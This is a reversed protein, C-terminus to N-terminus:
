SLIRNIIKQPKSLVNFFIDKFSSKMQDGFLKMMHTTLTKNYVNGAALVREKMQDKSLDEWHFKVEEMMEYDEIKQGNDYMKALKGNDYKMFFQQDIKYKLLVDKTGPKLFYHRLEAEKQTFSLGVALRPANTINPPSSHFTRNDFILAEGAKMPLLEFYPFLSFMHKALPSPVQPSPSPRVSNFFKHSGKIIGMCGNDMDTDVLAIWCTVSCHKTEDEVFTWDQHPPVVGKPNPDKIVYSATILQYDKLHPTLKPMAIEAIKDMMQAVLDKNDHDMAVYFGYDNVKKIGSEFLYNKLIEIENGELVPMKIFGNQEFFQQQNEDKFLAQMNTNRIRNQYLKEKFITYSLKKPHFAKEEVWKGILPKHIIEPYHLFMQTPMEFKSLANKNKDYYLMFLEADKHVLGITLALRNEMSKNPWSAHMLKQNFVFAEGAKLPLTILHSEFQQREADFAVPISPARYNEDVIHSGPILRIAGNEKSTDQLPIWITFSGYKEEDTVTWDQHLPLPNEENPKKKLFSSGLVKYDSFNNKLEDQLLSIIEDSVKKKLEFDPHFSTAYFAANQDDFNKHYIVKLEEVQNPALLPLTFYGNIALDTQLGKDNLLLM